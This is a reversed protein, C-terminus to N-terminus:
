SLVPNRSEYEVPQLCFDIDNIRKEFYRLM